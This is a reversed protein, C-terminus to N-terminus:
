VAGAGPRNKPKEFSLVVERRMRLNLRVAKDGTRPPPLYRRNMPLTRKTERRLVLGVRRAIERLLQSNRIYTGALTNEGLVYIAKGGPTLVRAVESVASAMDEVYRSLMGIHRRSLRSGLRYHSLLRRVFLEPERGQLGVETGVSGSRLKRLEGATFGMWVLSFKSCRMYDIANLYPPSTLVLDVSAERLKLDRADGTRVIPARGRATERQSLCNKLVHDVASLFKRFPEVPARDFARHPRSHALDMARSAGAQKAIILRSFACWLVDRVDMKRVRRIADSLAVLQRRARGDFWYRIFRKTEADAGRPYADKLLMGEGAWARKLVLLARSRV